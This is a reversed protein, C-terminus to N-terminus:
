GYLLKYLQRNYEALEDAYEEDTFDEDYRQREDTDTM